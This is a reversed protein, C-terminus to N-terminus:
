CVADFTKVPNRGKFYEIETEKEYLFLSTYMETWSPINCLLM